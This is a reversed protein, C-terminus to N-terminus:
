ISLHRGLALVMQAAGALEDETLFEEPRHARSIDGPGCIIAPIGAAQFLGAETGYSVAGMPANGSIEQAIAALPDDASLALAPYSSLWEASIDEGEARIAKVADLIPSLVTKPDAGAIARAEIDAQADEPIINIAQGGTITGIQLSSYPPAFRADQPGTALAEAQTTAANLVPLLAHIANRGLDPRSSHGPQGKAHLRLAAKGKHALVPVLGSPEGVICGLPPACHDPLAAIMHPVGRCGAEEDYSLAIHIPASLPMAALQPVMALVAAVYGKMDCTGRGILRGDQRRMVFPDALWEPESAPVVDVHGSLIYGPKTADGITAILNLRDGEPGRLLVHPVNHATLYNAVFDMLAENSTGVVTPFGVLKELMQAPTLPDTPAM